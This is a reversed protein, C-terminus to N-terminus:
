RGEPAAEVRSRAPVPRSMVATLVGAFVLLVAGLTELRFGTAAKATAQEYDRGYLGTADVDPLDVLMVLAASAEADVARLGAAFSGGMGDAFRENRVVTVDDPILAAVEDAAALVRLRLGALREVAVSLERLAEAKQASTMYGPDVEAVADLAEGIVAACGLM